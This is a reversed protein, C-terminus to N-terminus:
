LSKIAKAMNGKRSEELAKQYDDIVKPPYNETLANPYDPVAVAKRTMTLSMAATGDRGFFATERKEEYGELRVIVVYEGDSLNIFRFHGENDSFTRALFAGSKELIIETRGQSQTVPLLVQGRISNGGQLVLVFLLSRLLHPTVKGRLINCNIAIAGSSHPISWWPLVWVAM